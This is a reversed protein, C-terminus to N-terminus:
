VTCYISYLSLSLFIEWFRLTKIGWILVNFMQNWPIAWYVQYHLVLHREKHVPKKVTHTGEGHYLHEHCKLFLTRLQWMLSISILMHWFSTPHSFTKAFVIGIIINYKNSFKCLDLCKTNEGGWGGLFQLWKNINSWNKVFSLSCSFFCHKEDLHLKAPYRFGTDSPKANKRQALTESAVLINAQYEYSIQKLLKFSDMMSMTVWLTSIFVGCRSVENYKRQLESWLSKALFCSFKGDLHPCCVEVLSFLSALFLELVAPILLIVLSCKQGNKDRCKATFNSPADKSSKSSYSSVLWWTDIWCIQKNRLASSDTM